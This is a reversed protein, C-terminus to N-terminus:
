SETVKVEVEVSITGLYHLKFFKSNKGKEKAVEVVAERVGEDSTFVKTKGEHTKVFENTDKDFLIYTPKKESPKEVTGPTEKQETQEKKEANETSYAPKEEEPINFQPEDLKNNKETEM